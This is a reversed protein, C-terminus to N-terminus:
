FEGNTSVVQSFNQRFSPFREENDRGHFSFSLSFASSSINTEEDQKLILM